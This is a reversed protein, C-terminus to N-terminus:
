DNRGTAALRAGLGIMVLGGAGGLRELRHPRGALWSRATGALLAYMSDSAVAIAICVAGLVGLQVTASAGDPDVFQPLIATYFVFGKPNTIGVIFGERLIQRRPRVATADLVTSLSRRHRVAQIGLWVLYAAGALRLVNYAVQSRELLAGVGAAVLLLQVLIGAANGFVTLVAARRGLTVGRSIVFLVSPGPILVFVWTTLAFALLTHSDPM